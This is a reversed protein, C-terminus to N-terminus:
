KSEHKYFRAYEKQFQDCCLASCFEKQSASDVVGTSPVYLQYCQWCSRKSQVPSGATEAHIMEKQNGKHRWAQLAQLFDAHSKEEDFTGTLLQGGQNEMLPNTWFENDQPEVETGRWNLLAKLFSEHSDAENFDGDALNIPAASPSVITNEVVPKLQSWHKKPVKTTMDRLKDDVMDVPAPPKPLNPSKVVQRRLTEIEQFIVKRENGDCVKLHDLDSPTLELLMNGSIENFEFTCVHHGLDIKALWEGVQLIGWKNLDITAIPVKKAKTKKDSTPRDRVDQAYKRVSGRDERASRWRNGKKVQQSAQLQMQEKVLRLQEEMKVADAELRQSEKLNYDAQGPLPKAKGFATKM